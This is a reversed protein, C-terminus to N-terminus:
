RGAVYGAVVRRHAAVLAEIGAAPVVVGGLTRDRALVHVVEHAIRLSTLERDLEVPPDLARTLVIVVPAARGLLEILAIEAAQVRGSEAEICYWVADALCALAELRAARQALASPGRHELGETDVVLASGRALYRGVGGTVPAGVGVAAVDADMLANVLTSKGVGTLGVLLVEGVLGTPFLHLARGTARRADPLRGRVDPVSADVARGLRRRRELLAAWRERAREPPAALVADCAAEVARGARDVADGRLARVLVAGAAVAGAIAWPAGVIM